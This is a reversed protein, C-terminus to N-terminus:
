APANFFDFLSQETSKLYASYVYGTEADLTPTFTSVKVWGGADTGTVVQGVPQGSQFESLINDNKIAPSSRLKLHNTTSDVQDGPSFQKAAPLGPLGGVANATGKAVDLAKPKIKNWFAIVVGAVLVLLAISIYIATGKKM